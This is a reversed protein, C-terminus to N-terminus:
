RHGLREKRKKVKEKVSAIREATWRPKQGCGGCGGAPRDFLKKVTEWMTPKKVPPADKLEFYRREVVERWQPNEECLMRYREHGTAAIVVELMEDFTESM